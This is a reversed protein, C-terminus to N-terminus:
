LLDLLEQLTIKAQKMINKLTGKALEKHLPIPITIKGKEKDQKNLIAHSGRTRKHKFGLKSLAKIIEKGSVVPLKPM